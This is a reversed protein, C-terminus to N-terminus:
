YTITDSTTFRAVETTTFLAFNSGEAYYKRGKVPSYLYYGNSYIQKFGTYIKTSNKLMVGNEYLKLNKVGIENAVMSGQTVFFVKIRDETREATINVERTVLSGTSYLVIKDFGIGLKLLEASVEEPTMWVFASEDYCYDEDEEAFSTYPVAMVLVVTM